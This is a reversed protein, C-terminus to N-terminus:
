FAPHYQQELIQWCDCSPKFEAARWFRGGTTRREGAWDVPGDPYSFEVSGAAQLGPALARRDLQPAHEVAAKVMWFQNCLRGIAAPREWVPPLGAAAYIANCRETGPTPSVGPTNQEGDRLATIAIANAINDPNPAQSGDAISLLAEDPFGYQPRFGQQEAIDTFNAIDGVADVVTVHTVGESQFELIAQQIDAPSAFVDPCGLSYPVLKNGSVGVQALTDLARSIMRDNCDHHLFGLKEFGNGAEFFGRQALGLFTNRHLTELLQMNFLYPYFNAQEDASMFYGGFYPVENQPFCQKQPFAAYAGIDIVLLAGSEVIDLCLSQLSSRDAPNGQFYQVVVERCAIGGAANVGDVVAQAAARQDEPRPIGFLDNAAPGAIQVTIVALKIRNEEIGPARGPPSTCGGADQGTGGTGDGGGSGSTQGGTSAGSSGGGTAGSGSGGGSPTTASAGSADTTVTQDAADDGSGGGDDDVPAFGRDAELALQDDDGGAPVLLWVLLAMAVLSAVGAMARQTTPARRAWRRLEQFPTM